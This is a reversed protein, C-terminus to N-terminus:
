LCSRLCSTYRVEEARRLARHKELREWKQADTERKAQADSVDLGLLFGLAFICVGFVVKDM